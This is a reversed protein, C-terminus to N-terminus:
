RNRARARLALFHAQDEDCWEPDPDKRTAPKKAGNRRESNQLIRVDNSSGRAQEHLVDELERIKRNYEIANADFIRNAENITFRARAIVDERWKTLDRLQARVSALAVTVDETMTTVPNARHQRAGREPM